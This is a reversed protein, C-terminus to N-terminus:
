KKIEKITLAIVIIVIANISLELTARKSKKLKPKIMFVRGFRIM